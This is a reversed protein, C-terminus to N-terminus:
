LKIMVVSCGLKYVMNFGYKEFDINNTVGKTMNITGGDHSSKQM